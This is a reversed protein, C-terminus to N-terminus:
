RMEISKVKGQGILELLKRDSDKTFYRLEDWEEVLPEYYLSIYLDVFKLYNVRSEEKTQIDRLLIAEYNKDGRAKDKVAKYNVSSFDSENIWKGHVNHIM